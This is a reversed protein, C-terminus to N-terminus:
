WCKFCFSEVLNLLVSPPTIFLDASFFYCCKPQPSPRESHNRCPCSATKWVHQQANIFPLCSNAMSLLVSNPCLFPDPIPSRGLTHTPPCGPHHGGWGIRGVGCVVLWCTLMCVSPRDGIGSRKSHGLETSRETACLQQYKGSFVRIDNGSRRFSSILSTSM